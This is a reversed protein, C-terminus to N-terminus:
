RYNLTATIRLVLVTIEDDVIKYIIRASNSICSSRCGTWQGWLPHDDWKYYDELLYPGNQEVFNAWAKLIMIDESSLLGKQVATKLESEVNPNLTVKWV